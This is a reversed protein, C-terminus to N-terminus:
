PRWDAFPLAPEIAMLIGMGRPISGVRGMGGDCDALILSDTPRHVSSFSCIVNHALTM